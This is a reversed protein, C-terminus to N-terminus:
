FGRRYKWAFIIAALLAFFSGLIFPAWVGVSQWLWGAILSAPLLAIGTALNLFGFATGRLHAPVKDAVISLILGQSMGLYLGYLVFLIWILEPSSVLAFGLYVFAYLLFSSLLLGVRGLRDSLIGVPLASLAYVINTTMITLPVFNSSIGVQQTKLLLFADSSNGLNFLLTVLVIVWYSSSLEKLSQWNISKTKPQSKEHKPEKIGVSLLAVSMFGPIVSFLFVQRYDNISKSLLVFAFLPGLFAGISDLSQRLGYASGRIDAPTSDAVLADRPAGRIGKGVRDGFRAILIWFPNTALAFMPKVLASLGYGMITLSKRNKFYDSLSGSILKIVSATAEAIGEIMGVTLASTGLTNVLFLPLVVYIMESSIDTLLSVFGLIWVNRPIKKITLM